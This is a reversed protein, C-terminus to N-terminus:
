CNHLHFSVDMQLSITNAKITHKKKYDSTWESVAKGIDREDEFVSNNIAQRQLWLWRVEILNLEPSRTPLFVLHIRPYYRALTEKVIKSKHISANDLVLFIQRITDGYKRDVRKIFDLFQKGTKRNYSHTFMENNTHDYVGFM